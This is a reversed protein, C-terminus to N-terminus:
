SSHNLPRNFKRIGSTLGRESSVAEFLNNATVGAISLRITVKLTAQREDRTGGLLWRGRVAIIDNVTQGGGSKAMSKEDGDWECMGLLMKGPMGFELRAEVTEEVRASTRSDLGRGSFVRLCVVVIMGTLRSVRGKREEGSAPGDSAIVRSPAITSLRWAFGGSEIESGGGDSSSFVTSDGNLSAAEGM